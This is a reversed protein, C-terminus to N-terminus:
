NPKELALYNRRVRSKLEKFHSITMKRKLRQVMLGATRYLRYVRQVNAKFGRKMLLV